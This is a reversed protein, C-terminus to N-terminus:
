QPLMRNGMSGPRILTRCMVAQVSIDATVCAVGLKFSQAISRATNSSCTVGLPQCLQQAPWLWVGQLVSHQAAMQWVLQQLLIAVAHRAEGV